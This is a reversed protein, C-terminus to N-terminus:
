ARVERDKEPKRDADENREGTRTKTSAGAGGPTSKGPQYAMDEPLARDKGPDWDDDNREGTGTKAPMKMAGVAAVKGPQISTKAQQFSIKPYVWAAFAYDTLNIDTGGVIPQGDLTISGPLQYCMISTQDAPTGMIAGNDLPTLVQADVTASDWGYTQQFYIYAKNRDIRAILEQRMHEHPFGMTHGTEHRVVRRYESEPTAMSFGELNMTPQDTPILMIDTGLYSWYGGPGFSIRVNGVGTTEAFSIGATQSWANMHQVIRARLDPPTQEMFSVTLTRTSPGWYKSTLVTTMTKTVNAPLGLAKISGLVPTNLPNITRAVEAGKERLRSPLQKITCGVHGDHEAISGPDTVAVSGALEGIKRLVELLKDVDPQKSVDNMTQGKVRPNRIGKRPTGGPAEAGPVEFNLIAGLRGAPDVVALRLTLVATAEIDEPVSVEIAVHGDRIEPWPGSPDGAPEISGGPWQGWVALRYRDIAGPHARPPDTLTIVLALKGNAPADRRVAIQAPDLAPPPAPPLRVLMRVASLRSFSRPFDQRRREDPPAIGNEPTVLDLGAVGRREPPLRVEAWYLHRVFPELPDGIWEAQFCDQAPGLTMGGKGVTRAYLPDPVAALAHRLRFQPPESGAAGPSFLGPEERSLSDFNFGDAVITLRPAGTAPDVDGDLRPAPPRRSEPVALPVVPCRSFSPEAGDPGVPVVRLFQVTTLTRPLRHSFRVWLDPDTQVPAPTLLRFRDRPVEAGDLVHRCGAVAIEGRSMGASAVALGLGIADTLYVRYSAGVQGRWMLDLEVEPSPGPASTWYLGVGTQHVLPPRLDVYEFKRTAEPGENGERDVFRGALVASDRPKPPELDPLAFDIEQIGPQDVPIDHVEGGFQVRLVALPLAGAPLEDLRPVVIMRGHQLRENDTFAPEAASPVAVAVQLTGMSLPGTAELGKTRREVHGSLVPAPPVPRPPPGLAVADTWPGFRGFIDSAAFRYEAVGDQAPINEDALRGAPRQDRVARAFLRHRSNAEREYGLLRPVARAPVTDTDFLRHRAEPGGGGDRRVAMMAVMPPDPFAFEARYLDSPRTRDKATQWLHTLVEPGPLVPALPPLVPAAFAVFTAVVLGQSQVERILRALDSGVNRDPARRQLARLLLTILRHPGAADPQDIRLALREVLRPDLAFLGLVAFTDWGRDTRDAQVLDPPMEYHGAFGFYRALGPDICAAQLMAAAPLHVTQSALGAATKTFRDPEQTWPPGDGNLMKLLRIRLEGDIKLLHAVRDVEAAPPPDFPGNPRDMPTLLSPSGRQVRDFAVAEDDVAMYWRHRGADTGDRVPLGLVDDRAGGVERELLRDLNVVRPVITLPGRGTIRLRQLIPAAFQWGAASRVQVVRGFPDHLAARRIEGEPMLDIRVLDGGNLRPLILGVSAERDELLVTRGEVTAGTATLAFTESAFSLTRYVAFPTIPFSQSTGAFIRLHTGKALMPDPEGDFGYDGPHFAALAHASFIEPPAILDSM